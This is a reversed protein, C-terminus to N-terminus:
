VEWSRRGLKASKEGREPFTGAFFERSNRVLVRRGAFLLLRLALSALTELPNKNQCCNWVIAGGAVSPAIGAAAFAQSRKAVRLLRAKRSEHADWILFGAVVRFISPWLM